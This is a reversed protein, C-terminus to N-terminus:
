GLGDETLARDVDRRITNLLIGYALSLYTGFIVFGIVLPMTAFTARAPNSIWVAFIAALMAVSGFFLFRAKELSRADGLFSALRGLFVLFLLSGAVYCVGAPFVLWRSRDETTVVESALGLAIGSATIAIV